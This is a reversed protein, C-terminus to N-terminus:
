WKERRRDSKDQAIELIIIKGQNHICLVPLSNSSAKEIEVEQGRHRVSEKPQALQVFKRESV